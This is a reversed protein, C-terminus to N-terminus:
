FLDVSKYLSDETMINLKGDTYKYELSSMLESGLDAVERKFVQGQKGSKVDLEMIENVVTLYIKGTQSNMIGGTVTNKAKFKWAPASKGPINGEYLWADHVSTEGVEEIALFKDGNTAPILRKRSNKWLVDVDSGEISYLAKVVQQEARYEIFFQKRGPLYAIATGENPITKRAIIKFDNSIIRLAGTTALAIQSDDLNFFKPEGASEVGDVVSAIYQNTKPDILYVTNNGGLSRGCLLSKGDNSFILIKVYTLDATQWLEKGSVTNYSILNQWSSIIIQSGDPSIAYDNMKESFSSFTYLQTGTKANWMIVKNYETSFLYNGTADLKLNETGSSHGSPITIGGLQASTKLSIFLPIIIFIQKM